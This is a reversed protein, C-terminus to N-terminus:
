GNVSTYSYVAAKYMNANKVTQVVNTM